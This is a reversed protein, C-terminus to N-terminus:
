LKWGEEDFAQKWRYFWLMDKLNECVTRAEMAQVEMGLIDMLSGSGRKLLERYNKLLAERNERLKKAKKLQAEYSNILLSLTNRQNKIKEEANELSQRYLDKKDLYNEKRLKRSSSLFDDFSLALSFSWSFASKDDKYNVLLSDKIELSESFTGSLLLSPAYNQRNLVNQLELIKQQSHIKQIEPNNEFSDIRNWVQNTEESLFNGPLKQDEDSLLEVDWGVLSKLSAEIENRSNEYGLYKTFYSSKSNELEWIEAMSIQGQRQMELAAKIREDYFAMYAEEKKILRLQARYQIYKETVNELLSKESQSYTFQSMRLNERLMATEPNKKEGQFYFPLLSQSLSLSIGPRQTYGINSPTIEEFYNLVGRNLSYNLGGKILNGGPNKKSLSIEGSSSDSYWELGEYIDSFASSLSSSISLPYLSAKYKYARRAENENKRLVEQEFSYAKARDWLFELETDFVCIEPMFKGPLEFFQGDYSDEGELSEKKTQLESKTLVKGCDAFIGQVAILFLLLFFISKRLISCFKWRGSKGGPKGGSNGCYLNEKIM